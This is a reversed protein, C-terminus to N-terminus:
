IAGKGRKIPLVDINAKLMAEIPHLGLIINGLLSVALESGKRNKPINIKLKEFIENLEKEKEEPRSKFNIDEQELIWKLAYLIYELDYGPLGKVKEEYEKLVEKNNWIEIIADFVLRAKEKDFCYKGYLDIPLHTYNLKYFKKRNM